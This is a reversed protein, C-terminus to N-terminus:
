AAARGTGRAHGPRWLFDVSDENLARLKFCKQVPVDDGAAYRIAIV